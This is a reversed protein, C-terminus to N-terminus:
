EGKALAPRPFGAPGARSTKAAKVNFHKRMLELAELDQNAELLFKIERETKDRERMIELSVEALASVGADNVLKLSQRM